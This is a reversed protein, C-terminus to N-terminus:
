PETPVTTHEKQREANVAAAEASKSWPRLEYTTGPRDFRRGELGEARRRRFSHLPTAEPDIRVDLVVPGESAFARDLAGPLDEPDDVRIGLCGMAAGAAAFNPQSEPTELDVSQRLDEFFIEQWMQLWGLTGNNRSLGIEEPSTPCGAERLRDRIKPASMLQTELRNRLGPWARQLTELREGLESANIYKALSQEVAPDELPPDHAARVSREVEGASPWAAVASDVDLNELDRELIREYLAAIAISAVGVKFGHSLPPNNERGLGEGEWLHSFQHEAGSATRSSQYSQISLGSMVLGEILRDMAESDRAALEAPSRVWERLDDQVLLWGYPEIKEVGLADAVLWDAGSTVKGLLDAYRAATMDKPAGVLVDVDGIVARPAPCTLTQKKGEYEISAGFATYGDMSAATAVCLYAEGLEHAARKVIDNLTGSGVAVPVADTGRLAEVLKEVNSYEAYL